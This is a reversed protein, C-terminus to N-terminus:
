ACTGRQQLASEDLSTASIEFRGVLEQGEVRMSTFRMVSPLDEAICLAQPQLEASVEDGYQARIAEATMETEGVRVSSLALTMAGNAFGPTMAVGVSAGEGLAPLDVSLTVDAGDFGFSSGAAGAGVSMYTLQAANFRVEGRGEAVPSEDALPFDLVTVSVDGASGAINVNESSITVESLVGVALQPLLLGSIDVEVHQTAPLEAESIVAEAITSQAVSRAIWDAIGFLIVVFALIVAVIAVVRGTRRPEGATHEADPVPAVPTLVETRESELVM